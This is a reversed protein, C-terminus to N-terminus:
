MMLKAFLRSSMNVFGTSKCLNSCQRSKSLTCSSFLRTHRPEKYFTTLTDLQLMILKLDLHFNKNSILTLTSLKSWIYGPKNYYTPILAEHPRISPEFGIHPATAACKYGYTIFALLRISNLNCM